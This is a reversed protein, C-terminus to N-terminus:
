KIIVKQSTGPQVQFSTQITFLTEKVGKARFVAKYKGPQLKLSEQQDFESLNCVWVLQGADEKLISTIGNTITQFNV